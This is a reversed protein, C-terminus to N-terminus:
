GEWLDIEAVVNGVVLVHVRDEPRQGIEVAEHRCRMAPVDPDDYIHDQIVRGILVREKM